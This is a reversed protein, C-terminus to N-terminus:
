KGKGGKGGGSKAGGKGGFSKGEFGPRAKGKGGKSSGGKGAKVNKGTRREHRMAINDTRKKQKAAMQASLDRKRDAWAKGSKEKEKEKRKVAKKLRGEDDRVKVGEMRAEAKAWKEREEISKRKEEPLSSLKEKRAALKDLAQKPNSPLDALKSKSHKHTASLSSFAITTHSPYSQTPPDDDPVLLQNKTTSASAMAKEKGKGKSEKEVRIKEKTEKRRRERMLGRAKRREELLEDRSSAEEGVGQGRAGLPKGWGEDTPRPEGEEEEEEEEFNSQRHRKKALRLEAMRTHLKQRLAQIDSTQPLPVLSHPPEDDNLSMDPDLNMADEDEGEDEDEGGSGSDSDDHTPQARKSNSTPLSEAQIDLITKNNAPDLKEKRAKKSAEKIAQKPAKEKRSHKQYKSAAQEESQEHIFYFKPPILKLLNEFTENHKELSTLLTSPPTPM